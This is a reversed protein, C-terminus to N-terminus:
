GAMLKNKHNIREQPPTVSLRPGVAAVPVVTWGVSSLFLYLASIFFQCPFRSTRPFFVQGLALSDMVFQVSHVPFSGTGERNRFLCSVAEAIVLGAM